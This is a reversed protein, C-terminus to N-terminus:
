ALCMTPRGAIGISVFIDGSFGCLAEVMITWVDTNREITRSLSVALTPSEGCAGATQQSQHLFPICGHFNFFLIQLSDTHDTRPPAVLVCCSFLLASCSM